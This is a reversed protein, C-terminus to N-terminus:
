RGGLAESSSSKAGPIIAPEPRARCYTQAFAQASLPRSFLYGQGFRCGLDLLIQRQSEQEIGEAVTEMDLSAALALVSRVIAADESGHVVGEIFSRDIKLKDAPIRKLYSLSSYGTGFDDIAIGIGLDKLAGLVRISSEPDDMATSETVELELSSAPLGSRGLADRVKDLLAPDQFQRPSLNVAIRVPFGEVAWRQAQAAAQRLVWEGLSLILGSEEAIPIFEAPSHPHGAEDEWRLLAEAAVLRGDRLDFIPQYHLFLQERELAHQLRERLTLRRQRLNGLRTDYMAFRNRGARKAEYMATDASRLLGEQSAGHQPYLAAGVSCSTQLKKGHIQFPEAFTQILRNATQEATAAGAGPLIAMFEDGGVRALVDDQRLHARLRRAAEVLLEDGAGHGLTDNVDKFRDMDIFLVAFPQGNEQALRLQHQLREEAGTRNPTGTLGDLRAQGYLESSHVREHRGVRRAIYAILAVYILFAGFTVANNRWWREWVYSDPVSVYAYLPLHALRKFAGIRQKDSPIWSSHGSFTGEKLKPQARLLAALPGPSLRGYVANPDQAPWRAQQLGDERLLGIYSAPPLPLDYLYIGRKELPIAAQLVFLPTGSANRVTYRFPFRWQKLIKGREPMGLIYPSPDILSAQFQNWYPPDQSIDPLPEGEPLATNLLMQGNPRILAMAGVEPFRAQFKLLHPRALEPQNLVDLESLLEGLPALGNGLNDFVAQSTSALFGAQIQLNNNVERTEREWSWYGVVGMVATGLVISLAVAFNLM